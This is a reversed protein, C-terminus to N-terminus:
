SVAPALTAVAFSAKSDSMTKFTQSLYKNKLTKKM